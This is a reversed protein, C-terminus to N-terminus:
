PGNWLWEMEIYETLIYSLGCVVMFWGMLFDQIILQFVVGVIVFLLGELIVWLFPYRYLAKEKGIAKLLIYLIPIGRNISRKHRGPKFYSLIIHFACLLCFIYGFVFLAESQFEFFVNLGILDYPEPYWDIYGMFIWDFFAEKLNTAELFLHFIMIFPAFFDAVHIGGTANISMIVIAIYSSMFWGITKISHNMRLFIRVPYAPLCLIQFILRKGVHDDKSFGVMLFNIISFIVQKDGYLPILHRREALSEKSAM